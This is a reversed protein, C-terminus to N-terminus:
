ISEFLEKSVIAFDDLRAQLHRKDIRPLKEKNAVQSCHIKNGWKRIREAAEFGEKTLLGSKHATYILEYLSAGEPIEIFNGKVKIGLEKREKAPMDFLELLFRAYLIAELAARVSVLGAFYAGSKLCREADKRYRGTLKLLLEWNLRERKRKM